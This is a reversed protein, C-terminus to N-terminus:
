ARRSRKRIVGLGVLASGLLVMTGPEPTGSPVTYEYTVEAEASYNTTAVITLNLNGPGSLSDAFQQNDTLGYSFGTTAYSPDSLLDNCGDTTSTDGFSHGCGVTSYGIGVTISTPLTPYTYTAGPAVTVYGPTSVATLTAQAPTCAGLNLGINAYAEDSPSRVSCPSNPMTTASDVNVLSQVSASVMDTNTDNNTFQFTTVTNTFEYDFTSNGAAYTAGAIGLSAFSGFAFLSTPTSINLTTAGLTETQTVTYDGTHSDYGYSIITSAQSLPVFAALLTAGTLIRRFLNM